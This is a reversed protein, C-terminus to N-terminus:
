GAEAREFEARLEDLRRPVGEGAEARGLAGLLRAANAPSRLLHVTELLADYEDAAVMVIPEAGRGTIRVVERDRVARDWLDALHKRAETCSVSEAEM